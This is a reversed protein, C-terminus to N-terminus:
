ILASETKLESRERCCLGYKEIPIIVQRKCCCCEVSIYKENKIGSLMLDEETRIIRFNYKDKTALKDVTILEKDM